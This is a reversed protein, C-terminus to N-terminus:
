CPEVGGGDGGREGGGTVSMDAVGRGDGGSQGLLAIGGRVM